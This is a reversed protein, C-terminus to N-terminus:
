GCSVDAIKGTAPQFQDIGPNSRATTDLVMVAGDVATLNRYNDESFDWQASIGNPQFGM